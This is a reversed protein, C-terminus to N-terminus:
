SAQYVTYIYIDSVIIQTTHLSGPDEFLVILLEGDSQSKSTHGDSAHLHQGNSPRLEQLGLREGRDARCCQWNCGRRRFKGSRMVDRACAPARLSKTDWASSPQLLRTDRTWNTSSSPM